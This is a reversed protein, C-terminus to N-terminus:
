AVFGAVLGLGYWKFCIGVKDARNKGSIELVRFAFFQNFVLVCCDFLVFERCAQMDVYM